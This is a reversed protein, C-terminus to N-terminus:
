PSANPTALGFTASISSRSCASLSAEPPVARPTSEFSLVDRRQRVARHDRDVALAHAEFLPVATRWPAEPAIARGALEAGQRRLIRSM